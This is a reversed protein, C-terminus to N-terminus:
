VAASENVQESAQMQGTALFALEAESPPEWALIWRARHVLERPVYVVSYSRLDPGPWLFEVIVPVGENELLGGIIHGSWCHPYREFEEWQVYERPAPQPWPMQAAVNPPLGVQQSINSSALLPESATAVRPATSDRVLTEPAM